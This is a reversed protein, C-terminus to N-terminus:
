NLRQSSWARPARRRAARITGQEDPLVAAAFYHSSSHPSSPAAMAPAWDFRRGFAPLSSRARFLNPAVAMEAAVPLAGPRMPPASKLREIAPADAPTRVQRAPGDADARGSAERRRSDSRRSDSRESADRVVDGLGAADVESGDNSSASSIDSRPGTPAAVSQQAWPPPVSARRARRQKIFELTTQRTACLYGHFCLLAAVLAGLTAVAAAHAAVAARMPSGASSAPGTLKRVDLALQGGLSATLLSIMTMFRGYNQGGICHDLWGCHHDFEVVSRM